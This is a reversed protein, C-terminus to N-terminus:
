RYALKAYLLYVVLLINLGYNLYLPWHWFNQSSDSVLLYIITFLEGLFWLILFGWALDDASRTKFCKIVQPVACIALLSSGLWGIIEHM